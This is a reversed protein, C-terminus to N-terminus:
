VSCCQHMIAFYRQCVLIWLKDSNFGSHINLSVLCIWLLSPLLTQRKMAKENGRIGVHSPVWCFIIDKNAFNFFSVKTDGDRDLSKGAEYVTFSPSVFTLRYFYYM